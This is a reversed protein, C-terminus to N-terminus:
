GHRHVPRPVCEVIDSRSCEPDFRRLGALERVQRANGALTSKGVRTLLQAPGRRLACRGVVDAARGQGAAVPTQAGAQWIVRETLAAYEEDLRAACRGDVMRLMEGVRRHLAAPVRLRQLTEEM